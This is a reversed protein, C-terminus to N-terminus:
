RECSKRKEARCKDKARRGDARDNGKGGILTDKGSTGILKDHGKGGIMKARPTCPLGGASGELHDKGKLGKGVLTCGRLLLRNAASSGKAGAITATITANQFNVVGAEGAPGPSGVDFRSRTLDVSLTGGPSTAVFTNTGLGGDYVSGIATEPDVTVVDDGGAMSVSAAAHATATAPDSIDLLETADSGIFQFRGQTPVLDFREMSTWNLVNRDGRRGVGRTNDLVWDGTGALDFYVLDAGTGGAIAGSRLAETGLFDVVDDGDGLDVTDGNPQNPSGTVVVDNGGYTLVTDDDDDRASATGSTTVNDQGTGGFYRDPGQGLFVTVAAGGSGGADVTDSGAATDVYPTGGTVCVLDDGGYGGVTSAGNTVMVDRDDTGNLPLGPSGVMTATIGRCTEAQAQAVGTVGLGAVLLAGAGSVAVLRSVTNKTHM